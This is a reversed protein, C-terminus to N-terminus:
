YACLLPKYQYWQDLLCAATLSTNTFIVPGTPVCCLPRYQYWQDLLCAASLSTNTLIVSAVFLQSTQISMYWQDLLCAASLNTNVLKVPAVSSFHLPKKWKRERKERKKRKKQFPASGWLCVASGSKTSNQAGRSEVRQGNSAEWLCAERLSEQM